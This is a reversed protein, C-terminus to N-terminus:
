CLVLVGNEQLKKLTARVDEHLTAVADPYTEGILRVIEAVSRKGDCLGWIMAATPNLYVARDQQLHYLLIEGELVEMEVDVVPRPVLDTVSQSLDTM